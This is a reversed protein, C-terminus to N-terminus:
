RIKFNNVQSEIFNGFLNFIVFLFYIIILLFYSYKYKKKILNSLLFKKIKKNKDQQQLIM